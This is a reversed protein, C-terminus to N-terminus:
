TISLRGPAPQGRVGLAAQQWLAISSHWFETQAKMLVPPDFSAQAMNKLFREGLQVPDFGGALHGAQSLIFQSGFEQSRSMVDAMTKAMKEPSVPEPDPSKKPM